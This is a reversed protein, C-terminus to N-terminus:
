QTDELNEEETNRFDRQEHDSFFQALWASAGQLTAILLVELACYYEAAM